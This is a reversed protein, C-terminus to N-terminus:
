NPLVTLKGSIEYCILHPMHFNFFTSYNLILSRLVSLKQDLVLETM